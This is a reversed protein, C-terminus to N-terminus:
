LRESQSIASELSDLLMSLATIRRRLREVDPEIVAPDYEEPDVDIPKPVAGFLRSNMAETRHVLGMVRDCIGDLDDSFQSLMGKRGDAMGGIMGKVSADAVGEWDGRPPMTGKSKMTHDM